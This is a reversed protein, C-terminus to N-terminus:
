KKTKNRVSYSAKANEKLRQQMDGTIAALTHNQYHYEYQLQIYYYLNIGRCLSCYLTKTFTLNLTKKGARILAIFIDFELDFIYFIKSPFEWAFNNIRTYLIEANM